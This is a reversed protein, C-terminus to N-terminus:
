EEDEDINDFRTGATRAANKRGKLTERILKDTLVLRADALGDFKLGVAGEGTDILVEDGRVGALGGRCRRRGDVPEDTEFKAEHGEWAGFGALGTVPGDM